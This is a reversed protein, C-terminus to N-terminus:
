FAGLRTEVHPFSLNRRPIESDIILDYFPANHTSNHGLCMFLHLVYRPCLNGGRKKKVQHSETSMGHVKRWDNWNLILAGQFPFFCVILSLGM